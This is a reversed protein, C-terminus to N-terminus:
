FVPGRGSKVLRQVLKYSSEIADRSGQAKTGRLHESANEFAAEWTPEYGKDKLEERRDRLECVADWRIVHVELKSPM